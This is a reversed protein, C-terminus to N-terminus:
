IVLDFTPGDQNQLEALHCWSTSGSPMALVLCTINKSFLVACVAINKLSSLYTQHRCCCISCLEAASVLGKINGSYVFCLLDAQVVATVSVALLSSQRCFFFVCQLQTKLLTTSAM